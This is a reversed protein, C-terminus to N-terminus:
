LYMHHHSVDVTIKDLINDIIDRTIVFKDGIIPIKKAKFPLKDLFDSTDSDVCKQVLRLVNLRSVITELCRGLNRVGEEKEAFNTILYNVVDDDIIIEDEKFGMDKCFRPFMYEIAIKCKQESKYGKVRVM